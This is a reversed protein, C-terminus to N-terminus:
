LSWQPWKYLGGSGNTAVTGSQLRGVCCSAVLPRRGAMSAAHSSGNTSPPVTAVSCRLAVILQFNCPQLKGPVKFRPTERLQRLVVDYVHAATNLMFMAVWCVRRCQSTAQQDQRSRHQRRQALQAEHHGPVSGSQCGGREVRQGQDSPRSCAAPGSGILSQNPNWVTPQLNQIGLNLDWVERIRPHADVFGLIRGKPSRFYSGPIEPGPIGPANGLAKGTSTPCAPM